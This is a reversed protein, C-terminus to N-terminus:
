DLQELIVKAQQSRPVNAQAIQRLLALAKARKAPLSLLLMARKWNAEDTYESQVKQLTVIAAQLEGKQALLIGQAYPFLGSDKERQFSALEEMIQLGEAYDQKQYAVNVKTWLVDLKQEYDTSLGEPNTTRLTGPQYLSTPYDVYQEALQTAHSSTNMYWNAVLGGIFLLLIAA